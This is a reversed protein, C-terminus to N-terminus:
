ALRSRLPLPWWTRSWVRPRVGSAAPGGRGDNAVAAAQALLRADDPDSSLLCEIGLSMDQLRGAANLRPAISFGLDSARASSPNRAAVAFLAELGLRSRRSRIRKLGEAVLVRNNADLQVMDAVTGLAVLDLCDAVARTLKEETGFGRRALERALAAMVYFAVGVGALNKSAFCEDALDPNSQMALEAIGLSLGYGFRFRNPVLYNVRQYGFARLCTVMLATSTAGDADFDGVVLLAPQRTWSDALMEAAAQTGALSGIPLINGLSMKLESSQVRRAACVRRTVPDLDAPLADYLGSQVERRVIEIARGSNM